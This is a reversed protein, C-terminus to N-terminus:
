GAHDPERTTTLQRNNKNQYVSPIAAGLGHRRDPGRGLDLATVRGDYDVHLHCWEPISDVLQEYFSWDVGRFVVRQDPVETLCELEELSPVRVVPGPVELPPPVAATTHTTATSM